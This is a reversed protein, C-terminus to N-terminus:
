GYVFHHQKNNSDRCHCIRSLPGFSDYEGMSFRINTYGLSELQPTLITTEGKWYERFDFNDFKVEEPMSEYEM